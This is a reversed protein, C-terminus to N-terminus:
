HARAARLVRRTSECLQCQVETVNTSSAGSSGGRINGRDDLKDNIDGVRRQRRFLHQIGLVVAHAKLETIKAVRRRDHVIKAQKTRVFSTGSSKCM